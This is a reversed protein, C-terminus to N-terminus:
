LLVQVYTAPVYAIVVDQEDVTGGVVVSGDVLVGLWGDGTDAFVVRLESGKPLSVLPEEESQFDFLLAATFLVPPLSPAQSEDGSGVSEPPTAPSDSPSTADGEEGPRAEIALATSVHRITGPQAAVGEDLRTLRSQADRSPAGDVKAPSRPLEPLKSLRFYPSAVSARKDVNAAPVGPLQPLPRSVDPEQAALVDLDAGFEEDIAMDTDVGNVAAANDGGVDDDDDDDDLPELAALQPVLDPVVDYTKHQTPPRRPVRAERAKAAAKRATFADHLSFQALAGTGTSLQLFSVVFSSASASMAHVHGGMPGLRLKPTLFAKPSLSWLVITGDRSGSFLHFRDAALATVPETHGCLPLQASVHASLSDGRQLTARTAVPVVSAGDGYVLLERLLNDVGALIRGSTAMEAFLDLKTVASVTVPGAASGGIREPLTTPAFTCPTGDGLCVLPFALLEAADDGVVLSQGLQVLSRVPSSHNRVRDRTPAPPPGSVGGAALAALHVLEVQGSAFAVAVTANDSLLTAATPTSPRRATIPRPTGSSANSLSIAWVAGADPYLLWHRPAPSAAPLSLTVTQLWAIPLKGRVIPKRTFRGSSVDLFRISGDDAGFFVSSAVGPTLETGAAGPPEDAIAWICGAPSTLTLRTGAHAYLRAAADSVRAPVSIVSRAPPMAGNYLNSFTNHTWGGGGVGDHAAAAQDLEPRMDRGGGVEFVPPAEGGRIIGGSAPRPPVVAATAPDPRGQLAASISMLLATLDDFTPRTDASVGADPALQFRLSSPVQPDLWVEIRAHGVAGRSDVHSLALSRAARVGPGTRAPASSPRVVFTGKPTDPASLYAEAAHRDM